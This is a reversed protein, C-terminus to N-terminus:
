LLDLLHDLGQFIPLSTPAQSFLILLLFLILDKVMGLM